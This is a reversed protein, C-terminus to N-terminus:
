VRRRPFIHRKRLKARLKSACEECFRKEEEAAYTPLYMKRGVRPCLTPVSAKKIEIHEVADPHQIYL